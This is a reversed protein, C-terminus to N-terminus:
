QGAYESLIRRKANEAPVPAHFYFGQIVDCQINDLAKAQEASEVGEALITMGLEHGVQIMGRLIASGSETDYNAVLKKDLKLGDVPYQQLDSFSTFGEGFDDLVISVGYQKLEAMNSRIRLLHNASISETLEFILLEKPFDYADMIKKCKEAFDAAGFTDRSFNCSLFFDQVGLQWLEQLFACSMELCYYDLKFILGERELLPVFTSPMLLGKEPHLWRSLAEGGVINQRSSDIYFQIYLQFQGSDLASDLCARLQQELQIKKLLGDSFILSDKQEQLADYAVQNAHYLMETLDQDTSKLAYVGVSVHIDFPKYHLEPYSRIKDLIDRQWEERNEQNMFQKLVAFGHDSIRALVDTDTMTEQLVRACCRLVEEVERSDTMRHLRETDVYLVQLTYLVRNQEHVLERYRRQFYDFNGLGTLEDTELKQQLQKQKKRAKAALLTLATLLVAVALGLGGITVYLGRLPRSSVATEMMIGNLQEQSLSSLYEELESKLGEPAAQTFGLYYTLEKGKYETEFLITKQVDAPLPDDQTYGSLIDVQIKRALSERRDAGNDPYYVVQFRSQASFEQLLRPIIGQYSESQTDYYELPYADPNGAAYILVADEM